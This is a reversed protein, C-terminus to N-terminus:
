KGGLYWGMLDPNKILNTSYDEMVICGNEMVYGRDAYKLAARANQEVLLITIGNNKIKEILQFVQRVILPALGLSPEDLLLLKPKGMLARAIALLQQEGGSLTASIQSKRSELVPFHSYIRELEDLIARKPKKSYAGLYLNDLVSLEAFVHRGEPVHALGKRPLTAPRVQDIREENFYIRGKSPRKLGSITRLLTSKGAGNAGILAVIEGKRVELNLDSVAVVDGYQVELHEIRLM